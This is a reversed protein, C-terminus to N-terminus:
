TKEILHTFDEPGATISTQEKSIKAKEWELKRLRYLIQKQLYRHNKLMDAILGSTLASAGLIVLLTTLIISPFYPSVHGTKFYSILVRIGFFLGFSLSLGGIYSFTRLPKFDRYVRFITLGARLAYSFINPILRSGGDRRKLFTVPVELIKFGEFSAQVLMEQVYTYDSLINIWLAVESTFARFGTQADSLHLGSVRNTVWTAMKNGFRKGSTMHEISGLFRSGLVLDAKGELIPTILKPIEEPLYQADADINVIIDAGRDLAASLGTMFAKALGKRSKFSIVADAGAEKAVEVTRDTSGDDVLIVELVPYRTRPLEGIVTGVTHDENHAPIIVVIKM